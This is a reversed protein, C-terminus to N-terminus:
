LSMSPVQPMIATVGPTEQALSWIPMPIVMTIPFAEKPTEKASHEM